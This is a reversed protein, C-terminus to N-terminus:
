LGLEEAEKIAEVIQPHGDHVYPDIDGNHVAKLAALMKDFVPKIKKRTEFAGIGYSINREEQVTTAQIPTLSKVVDNQSTPKDM